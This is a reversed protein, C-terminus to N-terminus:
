KKEHPNNEWQAVTNYNTRFFTSLLCVLWFKSEYAYNDRFFSDVLNTYIENLNIILFNM